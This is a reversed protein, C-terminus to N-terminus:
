CELNTQKICLNAPQANTCYLKINEGVDIPPCGRVMSSALQEDAVELLMFTRNNFVLVYSILRRNDLDLVSPLTKGVLKHPGSMDTSWPENLADPRAANVEHYALNVDLPGIALALKARLLELQASTTSSM